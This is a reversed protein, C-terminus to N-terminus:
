ARAEKKAPLYPCLDVGARELVVDEALAACNPAGCAACDRGPLSRRIRDLHALKEIARSMDDDLRIGPRPAPPAAREATHGAPFGEHEADHWLMTSLHHDEILLPSGFCGGDCAFLEIAPIDSLLGDEIRELVAIVHAVGTVSLPRDPRPDSPTAAATATAPARRAGGLLAPLLADRLLQPEILREPPAGLRVLASRQAPCSVVFAPSDGAPAGTRKLAEGHSAYLAEWPSAWPAVHEILSPFRLEILNLVAPCLPTLAPRPLEGNRAATMVSDRLADEYAHVGVLDAFGLHGLEAVVAAVPTRPGFGALFAPPLALALGDLQSVDAATEALALAGPRCVGICDACDICLHELVFPQGSRVRLAGTPCATLCRRCQTCLEPHLELSLSAAPLTPQAKLVVTFEVRTGQEPTSTVSFTDANKRINPLGLGAGFGLARAEASATTWGETLALEVNPIGPGDDIVAVELLHDDFRAELRGGHSHIVVNMEAEYAAIMARRIADSDAGLRKLHAKVQRSAAGAGAYDGSQIDYVVTEM